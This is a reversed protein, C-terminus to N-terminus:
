LSHRGAPHDEEGRIESSELQGLGLQRGGLNLFDAALRNGLVEAVLSNVTAPSNHSVLVSVRPAVSKPHSRRIKEAHVPEYRARHEDRLDLQLFDAPNPDLDGPHTGPKGSHIRIPPKHDLDTPVVSTPDAGSM